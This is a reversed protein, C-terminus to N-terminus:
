QENWYLIQQATETPDIICTITKHARKNKTEGYSIIRFHSSGFAILNPPLSVGKDGLFKNFSEQKFAAEADDPTGADGDVGARMAIIEQSIELSLGLAILSPLTATNINVKGSAEAPYVTIYDKINNFIEPTMNKVLLVEEICDFYDDKRPYGETTYEDELDGGERIKDSDRWDEIFQALKSFDEEPNFYKILNEIVQRPANNINIRREEDQIGYFTRVETFPYSVTFTGVDGVNIGKFLPEEEESNNSWSEGLHDISHEESEIVSIAREVGAKALYLAKINDINLGTIKLELGMRGAIGISLIALIALIWLTIILIAGSEEKLSIM